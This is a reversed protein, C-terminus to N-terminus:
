GQFGFSPDEPLSGDTPAVRDLRVLSHREARITKQVLDEVRSVSVGSEQGQSHECKVELRKRLGEPCGWKALRCGLRM